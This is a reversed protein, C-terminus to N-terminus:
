WFRHRPFELCTLGSCGGQAEWVEVLDEWFFSVGLKRAIYLQKELYLLSMEEIGTRDHRMKNYCQDLFTQRHAIHPADEQRLAAIAKDIGGFIIEMPIIGSLAEAAWQRPDYPVLPRRQQEQHLIWHWACHCLDASRDVIKHSLTSVICEIRERVEESQEGM